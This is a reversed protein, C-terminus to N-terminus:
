AERSAAPKRGHTHLAHGYARACAATTSSQLHWRGMGGAPGYHCCDRHWFLLLDGSTNSSCSSYPTSEEAHQHPPPQEVRLPCALLRARRVPSCRGGGKEIVKPPPCVVNAGACKLLKQLSGIPIGLTLNRDCRCAPTCCVDHCCVAHCACARHARVGQCCTCPLAKSCQHVTLLCCERLMSCREEEVGRDRM